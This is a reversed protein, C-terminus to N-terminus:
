CFLTNVCRILIAVVNCDVSNSTPFYSGTPPPASTGTSTIPHALPPTLPQHHHYHLPVTRRALPSRKRRTAEVNSDSTTSRRVSNPIQLVVIGM